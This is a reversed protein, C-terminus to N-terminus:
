NNSNQQKAAHKADHIVVIKTVTGRVIMQVHKLGGLGLRLGGLGLRLGRLGWGWGWCVEQVPIYM